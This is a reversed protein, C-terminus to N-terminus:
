LFVLVCLLAGPSWSLSVFPPNAEEYVVWRHGYSLLIQPMLQVNWFEQSANVAGTLLNLVHCVVAVFLSDASSTHSCRENASRLYRRLIHKAARACM